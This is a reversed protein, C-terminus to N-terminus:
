SIYFKELNSSTNTSTRNIWRDVVINIAGDNMITSNDELNRYGLTVETIIEQKLYRVIMPLQSESIVYEMAMLM